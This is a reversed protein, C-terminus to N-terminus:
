DNERRGGRDFIGAQKRVNERGEGSLGAYGYMDQGLSRALRKLRGRAVVGIQKQHMVRFGLLFEDGGTVAGLPPLDGPVVENHDPRARVRRMDGAAAIRDRRQRRDGGSLCGKDRAAVFAAGVGKLM